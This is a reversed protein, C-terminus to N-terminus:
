HMIRLAYHTIRLQPRAPGTRRPKKESHEGLPYRTSSKVLAKDGTLPSIAPKFRAPLPEPAALGRPMTTVRLGAGNRLPGASIPSACGGYLPQLHGRPSCLTGFNSVLPSYCISSSLLSATGSCIEITLHLLMSEYAVSRVGFFARCYGIKDTIM